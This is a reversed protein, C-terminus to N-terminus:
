RATMRAEDSRPPLSSPRRVFVVDIIRTDHRRLADRLSDWREPQSSDADDYIYAVMRNWEEPREFYRVCDERIETEIKAAEAWNRVVKAEIVLKLDRIGFDIRPQVIGTSATYREDCLSAGFRPYLIAYLFAQVHAERDILWRAGQRRAGDDEWPWRKLAGQTARLITVVEDVTPVLSVAAEGSLVALGVSWTAARELEGAVPATRRLLETMTAIRQDDSPVPSLTAALPWVRRLALELAQADVDGGMAAAKLRGRGDMLDAALLRARSTWHPPGSWSDAYAALWTRADRADALDRIRNLGDAVGLLAIDDALMQGTAAGPRGRLRAIEDLFPGANTAATADDSHALVYGAYAIAPVGGYRAAELVDAISATPLMWDTAVDGGRHLREAFGLASPAAEQASSAIARRLEALRDALLAQPTM